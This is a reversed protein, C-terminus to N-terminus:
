SASALHLMYIHTFWDQWGQQRNAASGSDLGISIQYRNFWTFWIRILWTSWWFYYCKKRCSVKTTLDYLQRLQMICNLNFSMICSDVIIYGYSTAQHYLFIQLIENKSGCKSAYEQEVTFMWKSFHNILHSVLCAIQHYKYLLCM